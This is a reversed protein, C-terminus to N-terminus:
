RGGTERMQKSTQLSVSYIWSDVQLRNRYKRYLLQTDMKRKTTRQNSDNLKFHEIGKKGETEQRVHRGTKRGESQPQCRNLQQLSITHEHTHTHMGAHTHTHHDQQTPNSCAWAQEAGTAQSILFAAVTSCVEVSLDVLTVRETHADALGETRVHTPECTHMHTLTCAHLTSMSYTHTTIMQTQM